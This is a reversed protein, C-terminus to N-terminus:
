KKGTLVYDGKITMPIKQGMVQMDAKVDMKYNGSQLYGDELKVTLTGKQSGKMDMDMSVGKQNMNGKGNIVGDVDIDALGNKVAVLKYKIKIKMDINAVNVKTEADWTDGVRVPKSPYMSFMMGYLNNLQDKSFMKEIMEKTAPDMTSDSTFMENLGNVETIENNPSLKITISKGIINNNAKNLLSDPMDIGKMGMDMSMHAKTYTMKLEKGATDGNMVEFKSGMDMKMKMDMTQGMMTMGTSMNMQIDHTFTDGPKLRMKITYAEGSGGSNCATFFSLVLICTVLALLIRKM